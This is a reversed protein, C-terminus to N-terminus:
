LLERLEDVCRPDVPAGRMPGRSRVADRFRTKAEHRMRDRHATGLGTEPSTTLSDPTRRAVYLPEDVVAVEYRHWMLSTVAIDASTRLDAPIGVERLAETRYLHAPHSMRAAHPIIQGPPGPEGRRWPRNPPLVDQTGDQHRMIIPSAAADAGEAADLLKEFRGALSLDDAGHVTWWPTKCAALVLSEVYYCGRNEPLAYRVLHPDRLDPLEDFDPDADNGMVLTLPVDQSLISEAAERVMWSPKGYVPM